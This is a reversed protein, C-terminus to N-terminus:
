VDAMLLRYREIEAAVVVVVVVIMLSPRSM